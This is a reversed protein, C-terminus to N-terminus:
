VEKSLTNYISLAVNRISYSPDENILKMYLDLIRKKVTQDFNKRHRRKKGPKKRYHTSENVLSSRRAESLQMYESPTQVHISVFINGGISLLCYNSSVCVNSENMDTTSLQSSLSSSTGYSLTSNSPSCTNRFCVSAKQDNQECAKMHQNTSLVSTCNRYLIEKRDCNQLSTSSLVSNIQKEKPLYRAQMIMNMNSNDNSSVIYLRNICCLVVPTKLTQMSVDITM